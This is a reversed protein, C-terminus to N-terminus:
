WKFIGLTVLEREPVNTLDMIFNPDADRQQQYARASLLAELKTSFPLSHADPVLGTSHYYSPGHVFVACYDSAARSPIDTNLLSVISAELEERSRKPEDAKQRKRSEAVMANLEATEREAEAVPDFRILISAIREFSANYAGRVPFERDEDLMTYKEPDEKSKQLDFNLLGALAYVDGDSYQGTEEINARIADISNQENNTM